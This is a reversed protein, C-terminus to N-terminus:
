RKRLRSSQYEKVADLTSYWSRGKKHAALLGRRALLSLYQASYPTNKALKGLPLLQNEPTSTEIASLYIDLSREVAQGIFDVFGAIDGFHAQELLRYYKKRDNKLLIALPYGRQMLLINMMIRATRGNGDLFPHIAVLDHHFRAVHEVPHMNGNDKYKEVLKQMASAVQYGPTPTHKSGSIRVETTRYSGPRMDDQIRVVLSHIDRILRESLPTKTQADILTYMYDLAQSHNKAELHEEFGKGKITLGEKLVLFTEQLTLTNGEIANSNYTMEIHLDERLRALISPALPRHKQLRALKEDLRQLLRTNSM